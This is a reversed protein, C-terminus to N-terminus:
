PCGQAFRNLFCNFDLVNLTPAATSGDCNAYPDGAAFRSLFCNFDLVNLVPAVASSDCNAYCAAACGYLGCFVQIRQVNSFAQGGPAAADDVSWQLYYAQGPQVQPANLPWALTALGQGAGSGSTVASGITLEPTIRGGVPSQTALLLHASTNGLAADVAIAFEQNGLMPPGVIIMRPIIGGSGAQGGALNAPQDGARETYLTARDFPFTQDRVRPDTLGNALFDV